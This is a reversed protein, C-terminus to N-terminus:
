GVGSNGGRQRVRGGVGPLLPLRSYRESPHAVDLMVLRRVAERHNAALSFAVMAGIDHGVVDATEYGLAAILAAIDAAMAKKDYGGPPKDSRGMGRLDVAVVRHGEALEPLIKRFAWWTQPWGPLLLVLNGRGGAVHHLRVGNVTTFHSAFGALHPEADM